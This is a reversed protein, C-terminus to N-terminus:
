EKKERREAVCYIGSGSVGAGFCLNDSVCRAKSRDGSKWRNILAPERIFPRSMSVYDATGQEILREAVQFSRIGGVLILPISVAKRFARLEERFYAEKQESDIKSRSPSLKRGTVTGGSVELADLGAGALMQVVQVSDELELGNESFDRCNLKMLIPYDNGVAERAARYVELHIRARNSISGGYEDGRRNFFPSLFQSLLYGHASHIQVGDFGAKKSRGAADAFAAVIERIDRVTMERRPSEALGEFSSVALPTGAVPNDLAFCGAHAIQLVIRNGSEHVASTMEKLGPILDDSYAGLQRFSAKGEPRVYAHSTIILGVGGKALDGMTEVLRATVRGDDTAMGEWTASRIFRNPLQMGNIKGSEFLKSM